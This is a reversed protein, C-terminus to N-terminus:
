ETEWDVGVKFKPIWMGESNKEFLKPNEFDDYGCHILITLKYENAYSFVSEALEYTKKDSLDWHNGRPHIKFGKYPVEKMAKEITINAITSNDISFFIRTLVSFFLGLMYFIILIKYANDRISRASAM